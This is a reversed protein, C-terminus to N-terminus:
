LATILPVHSPDSAFGAVGGVSQVIHHFRMQSMAREDSPTWHWGERKCEIATFVGLTRGVHDPRIVVPTIGILDSSAAARNQQASQNNLGYRVMNGHEDVYAGVNNRWIMGGANAVELMCRQQVARESMM